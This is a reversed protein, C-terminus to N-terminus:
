NNEGSAFRAGSKIAAGNGLSRPHTVIKAGFGKAVEVSDDTSGDNVIIAEWFPYTQEQLSALADKLFFGQQFCPIVVSISDTM